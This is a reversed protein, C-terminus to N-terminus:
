DVGVESYLDDGIETYLQKAIAEIRAPDFFVKKARNEAYGYSLCFCDEIFNVTLTFYRASGGAQNPLYAIAFKEGEGGVRRTLIRGKSCLTPPLMKILAEQVDDEWEMGKIKAYYAAKFKLFKEKNTM